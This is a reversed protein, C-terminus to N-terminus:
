KLMAGKDARNRREIEVMSDTVPTLTRHRFIQGTADAGHRVKMGPVGSHARAEDSLEGYAKYQSPDASM